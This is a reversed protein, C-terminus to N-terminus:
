KGSLYPNGKCEESMKHFIGRFMSSPDGTFNVYPFRLRANAGSPSVPLSLRRCISLWTERSLRDADVFSVYHSICSASLYQAEVFDILDRFSEDQSCLSEILRFLSDETELRLERHTL